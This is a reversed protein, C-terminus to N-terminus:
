GFNNRIRALFNTAPEMDPETRLGPDSEINECHHALNMLVTEQQTQPLNMFSDFNHFSYQTEYGLVATELYGKHLWRCSLEGIYYAEILEKIKGSSLYSQWKGRVYNGNKRLWKESILTTHAIRLADAGESTFDILLHSGMFPLIAPTSKAALRFFKRLEFYTHDDGTPSADSIVDNSQSWDFGGIDENSAIYIGITDTDSWPTHNGKLRSGIIAEYIINM